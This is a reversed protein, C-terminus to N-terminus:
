RAVLAVAERASIHRDLAHSVPRLVSAAARPGSPRRGGTTWRHNYYSRNKILNRYCPRLEAVLQTFPDWLPVLVFDLFDRQLKGRLKLDDMQFNMFPLPTRGAALEEHAQNVFEMSIREEWQSAISFPLVQASLDCTHICAGMMLQKDDTNTAAQLQQVMEGHHAMDTDLICKIVCRRLAKQAAADLGQTIATAPRRLLECAVNAHHNELVSIDNHRLALPNAAEILFANTFGPHDVDHCLSAILLGLVDLTTFKTSAAAWFYLQYYIMQFCSFGHSWNHFPNDRYLRGVAYVWNRMAEGAINCRQMCGTHEFVPEVLGGLQEGTWELANFSLSRMQVISVARSDPVPVDVWLLLENVDSTKKESKDDKPAEPASQNASKMQSILALAAKDGTAHFSELAKWRQRYFSDSVLRAVDEGVKVDHASFGRSRDPGLKNAIELVGVTCEEGLSNRIPICMLTNVHAGLRRDVSADFAEHSRAEACNVTSGERSVLGAIGISRDFSFPPEDDAPMCWLEDRVEDVFIVSCTAAAVAAKLEEMIAAVYEKPSISQSCLQLLFSMRPRYEFEDEVASFSKRVLDERDAGSAWTQSLSARRGRNLSATPSVPAAGPVRPALQSSRGYRGAVTAGQLPQDFMEATARAQAVIGTKANMRDEEQKQADKFADSTQVQVTYARAMRRVLAGGAPAAAAPSRPEHVHSRESTTKGVAGGDRLTEANSMGLALETSKRRGLKSGSRKVWPDEQDNPTEQPNKAAAEIRGQATQLRQARDGTKEALGKRRPVKKDMGPLEGHTDISLAPLESVTSQKAAPAASANSSTAQAATPTSGSGRRASPTLAATTFNPLESCTPTMAPLKEVTTHGLHFSTSPSTPKCRQGFVAWAPQQPRGDSPSAQVKGDSADSDGGSSDSSGLRGLSAESGSGAGDFMKRHGKTEEQSWRMQSGVTM